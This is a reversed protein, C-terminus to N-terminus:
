IPFYISTQAWRTYTGWLSVVVCASGPSLEDSIIGASFCSIGLQIHGPRSMSQGQKGIIFTWKVEVFLQSILYIVTSIM